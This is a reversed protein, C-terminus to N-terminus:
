CDGNDDWARCKNVDRARDVSCDFWAASEWIFVYKADASVGAPRTLPGWWSMWIGAYYTAWVFGCFLGVVLILGLISAMRKAGSNTSPDVYQSSSDRRALSKWLHTRVGLFYAASVFSGFLVLIALAVLATPMSTLAIRHGLEIRSSSAGRKACGPFCM